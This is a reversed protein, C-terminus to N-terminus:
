PRRYIRASPFLDTLKGEYGLQQELTGALYWELIEEPTARQWAEVWSAFLRDHYPYILPDGLGEDVAQTPGLEASPTLNFCETPIVEQRFVETNLYRGLAYVEGKWLDALAALYGSLDGYLTTYGVTAEAKNANCTFVGGFAAALAETTLDDPTPGLGGTCVLLSCRQACERVVQILRERNDGVVTQRYHPLGQAALEEALWRANGNLITGLLLETGICLIEAALAGKAASSIAASSTEPSEASCSPDAMPMV